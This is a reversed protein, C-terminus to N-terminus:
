SHFSLVDSGDIQVTISVGSINEAVLILDVKINPKAFFNKRYGKEAYDYWLRLKLRSCKSEYIHYLFREIM